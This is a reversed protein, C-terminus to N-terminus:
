RPALAFRIDKYGSASLTRVVRAIIAADVHRDGRVLATPKAAPPPLARALGPIVGLSSETVPAAPKDAVSITETDISVIVVTPLQDGSLAKDAFVPPELPVPAGPPRADPPPGDPPPCDAPARDGAGPAAPFTAVLDNAGSM